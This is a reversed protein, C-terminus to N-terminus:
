QVWPWDAKRGRELLNIMKFTHDTLGGLEYENSGSNIQTSGGGSLNFGFIPVKTPVNGRIGASGAGYVYGYGRAPGMTQMDTLVIIRDQDSYGSRVAGAIDTGHGVAGVTRDISEVLRLVSGGKGFELRKCTTAFIRLDVDEGKLALASAFLAAADLMRMQSKASFGVGRMSASTDLLILTKGGLAPVNKVSEDLASEIAGAYKLSDTNKYASWFRFPMQRSKAVQAPDAIRAAVKSAVTPSIGAQDFNRLNRLLAMYGMVPIVAEWAKADMAGLGSLSEWTMGATKMLDPNALLEDRTIEGKNVKIRAALMPLQSVDPAAGYRSDQVFKFLAALSADVAKDGPRKPKPHALNVVDGMRVNSSSSDYKAVSYETWLRAAADALGRKVSSPVPKGYRNLWFALVENPEDARSCASAIVQRANEGGAKVYICAAAVSASRMNAENRLWPIFAQMWAPDDKTVTEVLGAFRTDRDQGNEYFTDESVFNSVGLLFLDSKADRTFAAAGEHNTTTTSTSQIAGRNARTTPTQKSFKSM